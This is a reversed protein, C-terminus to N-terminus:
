IYLEENEICIMLCLASESFMGVNLGDFIFKRHRVVLFNVHVNPDRIM